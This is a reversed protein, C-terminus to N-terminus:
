AASQLRPDCGITGSGLGDIVPHCVSGSVIPWDTVSLRGDSQLEALIKRYINDM